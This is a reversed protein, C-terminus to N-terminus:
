VSQNRSGNNPDIFFLPILRGTTTDGNNPDIFFLPTLRGTTTNGNNPDIFFLPTRRGATTKGHARPEVYRSEPKTGGKGACRCSPITPAHGGM